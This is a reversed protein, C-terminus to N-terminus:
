AVPPDQGAGRDLEPNAAHTLAHFIPFYTLAALLCGAM